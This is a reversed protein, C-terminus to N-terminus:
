TGDRERGYSPQKKLTNQIQGHHTLIPAVSSQKWISKSRKQRLLDEPINVWAEDEENGILDYGFNLIWEGFEATM